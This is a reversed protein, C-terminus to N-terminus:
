FEEVGIKFHNDLVAGEHEERSVDFTPHGHRKTSELETM